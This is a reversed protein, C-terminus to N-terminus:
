NEIAQVAEKRSLNTTWVGKERAKVALSEKHVPMLTPVDYQDRLSLALALSRPLGLRLLYHTEEMEESGGGRVQEKFKKFFFDYERMAYVPFFGMRDSSLEQRVQDEEAKLASMFAAFDDELKEKRGAVGSFFLCVRDTWRKVILQTM